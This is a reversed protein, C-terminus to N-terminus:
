PDEPQKLRRQVATQTDKQILWPSRPRARSLLFIRNFASQLIPRCGAEQTMPLGRSILPTPTGPVCCISGGRSATQESGGCM